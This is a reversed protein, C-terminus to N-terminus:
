LSGNMQANADAMAQASTKKGLVAAQINEFLIRQLENWKPHNPMNEVRGLQVIFPQLYPTNFQDYKLATFSAPFTATLRAQNKPQGVFAVFQEAAKQKSSHAPVLLSFGDATTVGMGKLGPLYGTGVKIGAELIPQVDFPGSYYMAIRKNLFLERLGTNDVELSSTPALGAKFVEVMADLASIAEPTNLTFQTQDQNFLKGGHDFLLPLYREVGNNVNGLPWAIGYQTTKGDKTVTLKKCYEMLQAWTQPPHEPDLGAAAFLDKNYYLGAGDHRFPVSYYRGKYEGTALASPVFDDKGLKTVVDTLDTLLGQRAYRLTRSELETIVDPANHSQLGVLIKQAMTDWTTIVIEVKEGPNATEYDAVIARAPKEDWNPLWWAITEAHTSTAGFLVAAGFILKRKM